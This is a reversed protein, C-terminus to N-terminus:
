YVTDTIIKLIEYVSATVCGAALEAVIPVDDEEFVETVSVITATSATITIPTEM